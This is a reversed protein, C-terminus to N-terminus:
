RPREMSTQRLAADVMRWFLPAPDVEAKVRLIYVPLAPKWDLPLRVADKATTVIMAAAAPPRELEAVSFPHHDPFRWGTARAGLGQLLGEFNGPRGLGSLALVEKRRLFALPRKKGDPWSELGLPARDLRFVPKKRWDPPLATRLAAGKLGKPAGSVLVADAQEAQSWPERWPGAPLLQEDFRLEDFDVLLLDLDRRLTWRRQFGDDLVLCGSGQTQAARASRVRDPDLWVACGCARVHELAEDGGQRADMGPLVLLPRPGPEARYGRLLIAPRMKKGAAREVLARVLLSKGTGGVSLNGVSLVPVAASWPKNPRFLRMFAWGLVYFNALLALFPTWLAGKRNWVETRSM